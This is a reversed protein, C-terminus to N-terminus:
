LSIVKGCSLVADIIEAMEALRGAGLAETIGLRDACPESVLVRVGGAELKRIDDCAGSNYAALSVAGNMLGLVAPKSQAQVLSAIFKRMFAPKYHRAEYSLLVGTTGPMVPAAPAATAPVEEPPEHQPEPEQEKRSAALYLLGDDDEPVFDRFGQAELVKQVEEAQAPSDILVKVEQEEEAGAILKEIDAITKGAASITLM